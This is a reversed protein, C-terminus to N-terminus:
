GADIAPTARDFLTALQGELVWATNGIQWVSV